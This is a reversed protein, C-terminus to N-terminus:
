IGWIGGFAGEGGGSHGGMDSKGRGGGWAGEGVGWAGFGLRLGLKCSNREINGHLLIFHEFHQHGFPANIEEFDALPANARLAQFNLVVRLESIEKIRLNKHGNGM